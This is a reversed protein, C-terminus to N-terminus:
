KALQGLRFRGVFEESSGFNPTGGARITTQWGEIMAHKKSFVKCHDLYELVAEREGRALLEVALSPDPPRLGNLEYSGPLVTVITDITAANKRLQAQPIADLMRILEDRAPDARRNFETGVADDAGPASRYLRVLQSVSKTSLEDGSKM